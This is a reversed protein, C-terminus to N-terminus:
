LDTTCKQANNEGFFRTLFAVVEGCTGLTITVGLDATRFGLRSQQYVRVPIPCTAGSLLTHTACTRPISGTRWMLVALTMQDDAAVTWKRRIRQTHVRQVNFPNDPVQYHWVQMRGVTTCSPQGTAVQCCCNIGVGACGYGLDSDTVPLCLGQVGRDRELVTDVVQFRVDAAHLVPAM